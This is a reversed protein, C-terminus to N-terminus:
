KKKKLQCSQGFFIRRSFTERITKLKKKPNKSLNDFVSFFDTRSMIDLIMLLTM